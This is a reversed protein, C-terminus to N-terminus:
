VFLNSAIIEQLIEGDRAALLFSSSIATSILLTASGVPVFV